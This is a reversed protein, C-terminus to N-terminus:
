KGAAVFVPSPNIAMQGNMYVRLTEVFEKNSAQIIKVSDKFTARIGPPHEEIKAEFALIDDDIAGSPEFNFLNKSKVRSM